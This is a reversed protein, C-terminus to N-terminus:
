ADGHGPALVRGGGRKLAAYDARTLEVWRTCRADGCECIFGWRLRLPSGAESKDAYRVTEENLREILERGSPELLEM